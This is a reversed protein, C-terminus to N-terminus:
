PRDEIVERLRQVEERLAELEGQRASAAPGDRNGILFVAIVATLYGIVALGFVRLALAVVRGEWTVPELPSNITTITTVAWWIGDELSRINGDAQGDELWHVLVGSTISLIVTLALLYAFRSFQLFDRVVRAVRNLLASARLLQFSRIARTGRLLRVASLVRFVRLAPVVLSLAVLWHTKLYGVISPALLLEIAFAVVFVVWIGIQARIILDDWPAGLSVAFELVLLGLTIIALLGLILDFWATVREQRALRTILERLELPWPQGRDPAGLTSRVAQNHNMDSRYAPLAQVTTVALGTHM